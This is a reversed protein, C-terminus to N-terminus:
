IVIDDKIEGIGTFIFNRGEGSGRIEGGLM